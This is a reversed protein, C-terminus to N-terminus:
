PRVRAVVFTWYTQEYLNVIVLEQILNKQVVMRGVLFDLFVQISLTMHSSFIFQSSVDNVYFSNM